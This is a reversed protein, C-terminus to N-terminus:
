LFQVELLLIDRHGLAQREPRHQVGVLLRLRFTLKLHESPDEKESSISVATSHPQM